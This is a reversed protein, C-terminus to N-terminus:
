QPIAGQYAVHGPRGAPEAVPRLTFMQVGHIADADLVVDLTGDAEFVVKSVFDRLSQVDAGVALLMGGDSFAVPTSQLAISKM